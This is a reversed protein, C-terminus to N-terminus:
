GVDINDAPLEVNPDIVLLDHSISSEQYIRLRGGDGDRSHDGRQSLLKVGAKSRFFILLEEATNVVHASSM